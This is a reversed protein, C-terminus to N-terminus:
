LGSTFPRLVENSAALSIYLAIMKLDPEYYM